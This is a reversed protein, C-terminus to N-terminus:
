GGTREKARRHRNGGAPHTALPWAPPRRSPAELVDVCGGGRRTRLAQDERQDIPRRPDSERPQPVQSERCKRQLLLWLNHDLQAVGRACAPLRVVRRRDLVGHRLELRLRISGFSPVRRPELDPHVSNWTEWAPAVALRNTSLSLLGNM